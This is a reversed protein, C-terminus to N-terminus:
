FTSTSRLQLLKEENTQKATGSKCHFTLDSKLNLNSRDALYKNYNKASIHKIFECTKSKSLRPPPLPNVGGGDLIKRQTSTKTTRAHTGSDLQNNSLSTAQRLFNSHMKSFSYGSIEHENMFNKNLFICYCILICKLKLRKFNM